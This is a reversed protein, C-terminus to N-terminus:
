PYVMRYFVSGNAPNITLNTSNVLDTGPLTVWNTNLGVALSNTQIQLHWGTHDVPWALSLVNGSVSATLNTPNANVTVVSAIALSGNVAINNTWYLQTSPLSPLNTAVLGGTFAHSFLQFTDGAALNTSGVNAVTLVIAGGNTFSLAALKSCNDTNTRNIQMNLAGNITAVNTVTLVGLTLNNITTAAEFLSGRITGNGALTQAISNGLNLTRDSRASVDLVAIAALTITSSTDLSTAPNGVSAIALVGSNITTTGDYALTGDLTLTGIGTKVISTNRPVTGNIGGSFTTSIGKAGILYTGNGDTNGAGNLSGTGTLAGLSIGAGVGTGNRTNIGGIVDFTANDGGNVNLSTSSFRLGGGTVIQVTGTMSQFQKVAATSFSINATIINTSSSSGVVLGGFGNGASSSSITGAGGDVMTLTNGPFSATSGNAVMNFTTGNSMTINGGNGILAGPGFILTATDELMTGGKYTSTGNLRWSSTGRVVLMTKAGSANDAISGNFITAATGVTLINTTATSAGSNTIVGNVTGANGSLANAAQDFGSLDLTGGTTGGDLILWGTTAGGSPIAQAVGLKVVGNNIYTNNLYSNVGGLTVIGSGSNILTGTGAIANNVALSGSRNLNLTSNNTVAGTGLSGSSSGLGVQLIGANIVTNGTYSNNGTLILTGSGDNTLSGSGSIAASVVQTDPLNFELASKNTVNGSGINATAIGNGVLLTGNNITTPGSYDNVELLTLSGSGNKTLSAGGSIRNGAAGQSFTYSSTSNSVVVTGPQLTAALTVSPNLGADNFTVNDNQLYNTQTASNLWNPTTNVDWTGSVSGQWTLNNPAATSVILRIKGAVSDDLNAVSGAQTFQVTLNAASGVESGVPYNILVYAGNPLPSGTVNIKISGSNLTLTGGVTVQDLTSSTTIDMDVEGGSLTLSNSFSLTGIIGNTAPSIRSGTVAVVSGTVVGSGVLTQNIPGTGNLTLAGSALASVDLTATSGLVITPSNSISAAAGLVLSGASVTTLGGYANVGNITLSGSGTNAVSASAGNIGSALTVAGSGQNIVAGNGSITGAYTLPGSRNFALTGNNAISPTNSISGVSGGNGLRLIGASITTNGYLTNNATLTLTGAGAQTLTIPGVISGGYAISDSRNFILGGAQGKVLTSGGLDGTTGGVGVQIAGANLYTTGSYTNAGALIVTGGASKTLATAGGNDAISANIRFTGAANQILVLDQGGVGQLTGNSIILSGTTIGANMLIGGVTLTNAGLDVLVNQSAMATFGGNTAFRLSTISASASLTTLPVGNALSVNTVGTALNPNGVISTATNTSFSISNNGTGGGGTQSNGVTVASGSATYTGPAKGAWDLFGGATAYPVGSVLVINTPISINTMYTLTRTLDHTPFDVTGGVSRTFAGVFLNTVRGGSIRSNGIFSQGAGIALNSLAYTLQGASGTQQAFNFTAGALTLSNAVPLAVSSLLAGYNNMQFTGGIGNGVFLGGTFTNTAASVLTGSGNKTLGATGAIPVTITATQNSVSITPAGLGGTNDLTLISGGVASLTWNFNPTKDAFLLTGLTHNADLTVTTAATIDIQSFDAVNSVGDAVVGNTWKTTDSWNGAGNNIWVSSQASARNAPWLSLILAAFLFLGTTIPSPKNTKM